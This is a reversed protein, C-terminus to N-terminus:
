NWRVDAPPPLGGQINEPDLDVSDDGGGGASDTEVHGNVRCGEVTVTGDANNVVADCQAQTNNIVVPISSRCGLTGTLALAGLGAGMLVLIVRLWRPIFDLSLVSAAWDGFSKSRDPGM